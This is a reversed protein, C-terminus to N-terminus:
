IYIVNAYSDYQKFDFGSDWDYGYTAYIKNKVQYAVVYDSNWGPDTLLDCGIMTGNLKYGTTRNIYINNLKKISADNVKLIFYILLLETM